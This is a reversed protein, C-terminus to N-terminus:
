EAAAVAANFSAAAAAFGAGGPAYAVLAARQRMRIFAIMARTLGRFRANREQKVALLATDYAEQAQPSDEPPRIRTVKFNALLLKLVSKNSNEGAHRLAAWGNQDTINPDVFIKAIKTCDQEQVTGQTKNIDRKMGVAVVKKLLNM